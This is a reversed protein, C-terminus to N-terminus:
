LGKNSFAIAKSAIFSVKIQRKEDGWVCSETGLTELCSGPSGLINVVEEYAMGVKLKDYNEKSLRSCGVASILFLALIVYSINRKASSM